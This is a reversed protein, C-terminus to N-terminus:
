GRFAPRQIDSMQIAFPLQNRVTTQFPDPSVLGATPLRHDYDAHRPRIDLQAVPQPWFVAAKPNLFAYREHPDSVSPVPLPDAEDAQTTEAATRDQIGCLRVETAPRAGPDAIGALIRPPDPRIAAMMSGDSDRLWTTLDRAWISDCFHFGPM